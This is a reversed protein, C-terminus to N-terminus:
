AAKSYNDVYDRENKVVAFARLVLKNKIANLISMTHKGERKKREYYDKFEHYNQISTLACMHLLRKLEKNAMKHVHHKGKISIGSQYDFPVVGCYCALQKGSKCITFMNSCCILYIATIHGIGPVTNLLKYTKYITDDQKLVDKIKQETQKLSQQLGKLAPQLLKKLAATEASSTSVHKLEKLATEFSRTQVILKNRVTLLDKLSMVPSHLAPTPKLRDANRVAYLALRRSDVKDNKGRAIGLSWKVQAANEICLDIQLSSFFQWLLRHYIGTNEIVVITQGNLSVNMETLWQKMQKLGALTNEFQKWAPKPFCSEESIIFAVDLTHKSVDIGIFYKKKM